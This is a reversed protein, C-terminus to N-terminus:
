FEYAPATLELAQRSTASARLVLVVPAIAGESPPTGVIRIERVFTGLVTDDPEITTVVIDTVADLGITQAMITVAM